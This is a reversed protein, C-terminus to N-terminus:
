KQSFDIKHTSIVMEREYKIEMPPNYQAVVLYKPEWRVFEKIYGRPAGGEQEPHLQVIIDDGRTFPKPPNTWVTEGPKYRPYMSTGDVYSAYADLVGILHPPRQVWGMVQGNFEFEGGDGGKSRGLVPVDRPGLPPTPAAAISDPPPNAFAPTTLIKLAAPLRQVKDAEETAEKMMELFDSESVDLANALKKWNRMMSINGREWDSVTTQSAGFLNGFQGQNLGMEKRKLRILEGLKNM